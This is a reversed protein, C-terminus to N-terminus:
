KRNDGGQEKDSKDNDKSREDRNRSPEKSVNTKNQQVAEHQQIQEQQKAQQPQEQQQRDQQHPQNQKSQEQARNVSEQIRQQRIQEQQKAQQDAPQRAQQSRQENQQVPQQQQRAQQQHENAVKTDRENQQQSKIHAQDSQERENKYYQVVAASQPQYRYNQQQMDRQHVADPYRNGSYQRQYSPLPSASSIRQHDWSDWGRHQEQWNVGWHEGWHPADNASWFHFFVPPQRYYRVPVRLVYEPVANSDVYSWPGNYWSSAYWNDNDYVWYLGDYFFYNSEIHPAYYVPYGPIAVLDPYDSLNVGIRLNPSGISVSLQAASTNIAGLFLVSIILLNRM